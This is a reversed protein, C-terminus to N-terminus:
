NVYVFLVTETLPDEKLQYYPFRRQYDKVLPHDLKKGLLDQFYLYTTKPFRVGQFEFLFQDSILM